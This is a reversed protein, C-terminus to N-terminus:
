SPWTLGTGRMRSALQLQAPGWRCWLPAKTSRPGSSAVLGLRAALALRRWPVWQPPLPPPFWRLPPPPLWRSRRRRRNQSRTLKKRFIYTREKYHKKKQFIDVTSLRGSTNGRQWNVKFGLFTEHFWLSIKIQNDIAHIDIGGPQVGAGGLTFTISGWARCPLSRRTSTLRGRSCIFWSDRVAHIIYIKSLYVLKKAM